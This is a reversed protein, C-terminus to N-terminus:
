DLEDHLKDKKKEEETMTKIYRKQYIELALDGPLRDVPSPNNPAGPNVIQASMARHSAQGFDESLHRPGACGAVLCSVALLVILVLCLRRHPAYM